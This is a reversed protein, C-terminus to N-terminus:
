LYGQATNPSREFLDAYVFVQDTGPCAGRPRLLGRAAHVDRHWSGLRAGNQQGVASHVGTTGAM